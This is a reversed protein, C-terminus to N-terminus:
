KCKECVPVAEPPDVRCVVSVPEDIWKCDYGVFRGCYYCQMPRAADERAAGRGQPWGGATNM